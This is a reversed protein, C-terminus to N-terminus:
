AVWKFRRPALNTEGSGEALLLLEKNDVLTVSLIKGNGVAVRKVTNTPIIKVQGAYMSIDSRQELSLLDGAYTLAPLVCTVMAVALSNRIYKM